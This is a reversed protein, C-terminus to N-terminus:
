ILDSNDISKQADQAEVARRIKRQLLAFYDTLDEFSSRSLNAPWQVVVLGEDLSFTDQKVGPNPMDPAVSRQPQPVAAVRDVNSSMATALPPDSVVVEEDQSPSLGNQDHSFVGSFHATQSFVKICTTAAAEDPFKYDWILTHIMNAHSPLGSEKWRTYFDLFLRPKLAAERVYGDREESGPRNDLLIRLALETLKLSRADGSGEDLLLGYGILAGITQQGGSSAPSYGWAKVAVAVPAKNRGEAQYLLRVRELAKDLSIFPYKPSRQIAAM